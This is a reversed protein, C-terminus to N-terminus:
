QRGANEDGVRVWLLPQTGLLVRLQPPPLSCLTLLRLPLCCRCRRGAAGVRIVSGVVWREPRLQRRLLLKVVALWNLRHGPLVLALLLLLLLQRLLLVGRHPADRAGAADRGLALSRHRNLALARRQRGCQIRTGKRRQSCAGGAQLLAQVALSAGAGIGCSRRRRCCGVIPPVGGDASPALPSLLATCGLDVEFQCMNRIGM